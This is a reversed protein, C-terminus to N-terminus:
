TRSPLPHPIHYKRQEDSQAANDDCKESHEFCVKLVRCCFGFRLCVFVPGGVLTFGTVLIGASPSTWWGRGEAKKYQLCLMTEIFRCSLLQRHQTSHHSFDNKYEDWISYICEYRMMSCNRNRCASSTFKRWWMLWNVNSIGYAYFLGWMSNIHPDM